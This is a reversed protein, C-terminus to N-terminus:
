KAGPAMATPISSRSSTVAQGPRPLRISTGFEVFRVKGTRVAPLSNLRESWRTVPISTWSGYTPGFRLALLGIKDRGAPRNAVLREVVKGVMSLVLREESPGVGGGIRWLRGESLRCASFYPGHILRCVLDVHGAKPPRNVTAVTRQSSLDLIPGGRSRSAAPLKGLWVRGENTLRFQLPPDSDPRVVLPGGFLSDHGKPGIVRPKWSTPQAQPEFFPRLFAIGVSQNGDAPCVLRDLADPHFKLRAPLSFEVVTQGHPTMEAVFDVGDTRSMVTIAVTTEPSNYSM